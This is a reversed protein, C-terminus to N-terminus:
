KMTKWTIQQQESLVSSATRSPVGEETRNWSETKKVQREIWSGDVPGLGPWMWAAGTPFILDEDGLSALLLLSIGSWENINRLSNVNCLLYLDHM